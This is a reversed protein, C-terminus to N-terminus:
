IERAMRSPFNTMERSTNKVFVVGLCSVDTYYEILLCLIIMFHTFIHWVHYNYVHFLYIDSKYELCILCFLLIQKNTQNHKVGRELIDWDTKNTSSVPPGPSFWRGTVSWQCVKDCLTTCRASIQVWLM